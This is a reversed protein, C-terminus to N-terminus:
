SSSLKKARTEILDGYKRGLHSTKASKDTKQFDTKKAVLLVVKEQLVLAFFNDEEYSKTRMTTVMMAQLNKV